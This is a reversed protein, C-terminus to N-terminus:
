SNAYHRRVYERARESREKLRFLRDALPHLPLGTAFRSSAFAAANPRMGPLTEGLTQIPEAHESAGQSQSLAESM